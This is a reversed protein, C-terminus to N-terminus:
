EFHRPWSELNKVLKKVADAGRLVLHAPLHDEYFNIHLNNAQAYGEAVNWDPHEEDLTAVFDGIKRHTELTTDKKASIAKILEATAGRLKESAQPHDKKRPLVEAEELYKSYLRLYTEITLKQPRLM